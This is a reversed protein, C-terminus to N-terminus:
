RRSKTRRYVEACVRRARDRGMAHIDYPETTVASSSRAKDVLTPGNSYAAISMWLCAKWAATSSGSLPATTSARADQRAVSGRVRRSPTSPDTLFAKPRQVRSLSGRWRGHTRVAGRCASALPGASSSRNTGDAARRRRLPRRRGQAKAGPEIPPHALGDPYRSSTSRDPVM